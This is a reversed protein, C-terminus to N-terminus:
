CIKFWLSVSNETIQKTVAPYYYCSNLVTAELLSVTIAMRDGRNNYGMHQSCEEVFVPKSSEWTM